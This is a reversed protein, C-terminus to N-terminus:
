LSMAIVILAALNGVLILAILLLMAGLTLWLRGMNMIINAMGVRMQVAAARVNDETFQKGEGQEVEHLFNARVIENFIEAQTQKM